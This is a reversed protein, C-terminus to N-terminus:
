FKPGFKSLKVQYRKFIILHVLHLNKRKLFPLESIAPLNSPNSMSNWIKPLSIIKETYNHYENDKICNEDSIIYDM